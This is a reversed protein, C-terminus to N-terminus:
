EAAQPLQLFRLRMKGDVIVPQDAHAEYLEGDVTYAGNFRLTLSDIRRVTCGHGPSIRRKWLSSLTNVM